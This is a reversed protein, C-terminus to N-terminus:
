NLALKASATESGDTDVLANIRDRESKFATLFKGKLVRGKPLRIGMPNVKSGNVIVEYHLHPGTSLGTSGVAGIVQGQRVRAGPVVGKAIRSQHSYSTVYGNAHRIITQRGYGGSHWGAKVVVGNGAALIKTGRKASWDVGTHMKRYRTVPHRRMGFSSRFRGYPVPKRLLFKKASKGFEDYFDVVGDDSTHFRYYRRKLSKLTISTYLIESKDNPKEEGPQMSFLVELQDSASIRKQFDVDFAFVRVLRRAHGPKLGQSLAARYIGNYTSPLKAGGVVAFENSKVTEAIASIPTPELAYVFNGNDRKAISSIHSGQKYISVRSILKKDNDPTKEYAVRLKYGASITTSGLEGTLADVIIRSSAVDADIGALAESLPQSNRISIVEERYFHDQDSTGDQKEILSVNEATITIDPGTVIANATSDLTFRSDDFYTLSAVNISGDDLKNALSRVTQEVEFESPESSPDYTAGSLPFSILKITVESDIDAGYILDNSTTVIKDDRSTSFVTLANFRPYKLKQAPAIALPASIYGFPQKKIVEADGVRTITPVQMVRKSSSETAVIAVPRDGRRAITDSSLSNNSLDLSRPPQALQQRGDLAAFLAGGM